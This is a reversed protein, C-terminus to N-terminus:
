VLEQRVTPRRVEADLAKPEAPPLSRIVFVATDRALDPLPAIHREKLSNALRIM